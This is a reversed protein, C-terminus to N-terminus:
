NYLCDELDRAELISKYKDGAEKLEDSSMNKLEQTLLDQATTKKAEKKMPEYVKKEVKAEAEVDEEVEVVYVTGEELGYFIKNENKLYVDRQKDKRIKLSFNGVFGVSFCYQEEIDDWSIIGDTHKFM